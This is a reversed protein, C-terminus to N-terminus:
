SHNMTLKERSWHNNHQLDKKRLECDGNECISCYRASCPDMHILVEVSGKFHAEILQELERAEQHAAELTFNRPLIIHFDIHILRGSRWARLEHVDIWIPKRHQRLLKAIEDLLVPDSRDMLRSFSHWVLKGGSGLIHIGVMCAITGDLWYWGTLTVMFLGVLVGGSTYVDTLIHKGDAVIAFSSTRRGTRILVMGLALNILSTIFLILLGDHLRPLPRPSLLHTLGTKFIGFAALIILAGEFGASFYEIKGHGYPHSEDPPKAALLISGFAFASAVVNIISELADSLIASSNTIHYVYFKAAMLAVGVVFSASIAILRIKHHDREIPPLNNYRIDM